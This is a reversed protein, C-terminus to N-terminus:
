SVNYASINKFDRIKYHINQYNYMAYRTKGSISCGVWVNYDM